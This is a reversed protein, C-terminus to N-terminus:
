NVELQSQSRSVSAWGHALFGSEAASFAERTCICAMVAASLFFYAASDAATARAVNWASSKRLLLTRALPAPDLLWSSPLVAAAEPLV